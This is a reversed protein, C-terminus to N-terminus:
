AVSKLVGHRTVVRDFRWGRLKERNDTQGVIVAGTRQEIRSCLRRLRDGRLHDRELSDSDGSDAEAQVLVTVKDPHRRAIEEILEEDGDSQDVIALIDSM